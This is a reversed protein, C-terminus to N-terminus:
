KVRVIKFYLISVPSEFYDWYVPCFWCILVEDVRNRNKRYEYVAGGLEKKQFYLERSDPFKRDSFTFELEKVTTDGVVEYIIAPVGQVFEEKIISKIPDDFFWQENEENKGRYAILTKLV